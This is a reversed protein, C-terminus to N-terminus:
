SGERPSPNPIPKKSTVKTMVDYVCPIVVLTLITSTILGGAIAWAMPSRLDVSEGFGFTLPLVGLIATLSNMIIPRIRHLGALMIAERKEMGSNRLKNIADVLVISDNVGIGVLMIMGIYAMINFPIGVIYFTVVAGVLAMPITLLVTFPHVLSEFQAAMVMYVLIISLIM